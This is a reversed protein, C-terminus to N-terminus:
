HFVLELEGMNTFYSVYFINKGEIIGKKSLKGILIEFILPFDDDEDPEDYLWYFIIQKDFYDSIDLQSRMQWDFTEHM